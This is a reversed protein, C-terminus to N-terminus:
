PFQADYAAENIDPGWTVSGTGEHVGVPGGCVLENGFTAICSDTSWGDFYPIGDVDMVLQSKKGFVTGNVTWFCTWIHAGDNLLLTWECPFGVIQRLIFAWPQPYPPEGPCQEFGDFCVEVYKPTNDNFLSESCETCSSGDEYNPDTPDAPNGM